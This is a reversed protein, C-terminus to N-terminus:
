DLWTLVAVFVEFAVDDDVLWPADSDGNVAVDGVVVVKHCCYNM